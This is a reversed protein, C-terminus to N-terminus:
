DKYQKSPRVRTSVKKEYKKEREYNGRFINRYTDRNIEDLAEKVNRKLSGIFKYTTMTSRGRWDKGIM